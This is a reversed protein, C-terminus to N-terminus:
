LEFLTLSRGLLDSGVTHHNSSQLTSSQTGPLPCSSPHGEGNVKTNKRRPVSYLLTKRCTKLLLRGTECLKTRCQRLFSASVKYIGEFTESVSVPREEQLLPNGRGSLTHVSARPPVSHGWGWHRYCLLLPPNQTKRM